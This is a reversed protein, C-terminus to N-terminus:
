HVPPLSPLGSSSSRSSWSPYSRSSTRGSTIQVSAPATLGLHSLVSTPGSYCAPSLSPPQSSPGLGGGASTPSKPSPSPLFSRIPTANSIAGSLRASSPRLSSSASCRPASTTTPIPTSDMPSSRATATASLGFSESAVDLFAFTIWVVFYVYTSLSKFRFKLEFTFFEWFLAM